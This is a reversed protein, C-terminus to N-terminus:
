AGERERFVRRAEREVVDQSLKAYRMTTSIDAHGLLQQLVALSGGDAVFRLAYTHRCRHPHFDAIGSARRVARAFGGPNGEPFPVLSGIRTRIEALLKAPLPVRRVKGNKTRTVVVCGGDVYVTDDSTRRKAVARVAEGWRLGSGVLFRIVFGAPDPLAELKAVEDDSLGKPVTEQVRPLVDSPWPNKVLKESEVCWRLFARLDSLMHTVTLPKLKQGELKKRYLRVSDRSISTLLSGRFMPLLYTEARVRAQRQGKENRRTPVKVTLWEEVAREVTVRRIVPAGNLHERHKTRAAEYNDGLSVWRVTSGERKRMYFNDRRQWIGRTRTKKM